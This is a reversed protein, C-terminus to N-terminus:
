WGQRSARLGAAVLLQGGDFSRFPLLNVLLLVTNIQFAFSVACAATIIASSESDPTGILPWGLSRLAAFAALALVASVLPGAGVIAGLRGATLRDDDHMEVFGGAFNLEIAAVDVTVIRAAFYHGLEHALISVCYVAAVGLGASLVWATSPHTVTFDLPDHTELWAAYARWDEPAPHAPVHLFTADAVGRSAFWGLVIAVALFTTSVRLPVGALSM